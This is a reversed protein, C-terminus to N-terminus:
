SIIYLFKGGTNNPELKLPLFQLPYMFVANQLLLIYPMTVEASLITLFDM